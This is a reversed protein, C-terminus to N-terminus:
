RWLNYDSKLAGLDANTMGERLWISAKEVWWCYNKKSLNKKADIWLRKVEGRDATQSTYAIAVQENQAKEKKKTADRKRMEKFMDKIEKSSM